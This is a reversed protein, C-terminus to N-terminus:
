ANPYSTLEGTEKCMFHMEEEDFYANNEFDEFNDFIMSKSITFTRKICGKRGHEYKEVFKKADERDYFIAVPAAYYDDCMYHGQEEFVIYVIKKTIENEM